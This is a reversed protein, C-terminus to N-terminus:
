YINRSIVTCKVFILMNKFIHIFENFYDAIKTALKELLLLFLKEVVPSFDIPMIAYIEKIQM